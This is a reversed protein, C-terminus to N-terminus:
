AYVSRNYAIDKAGYGAGVLGALFQEVGIKDQKQTEDYVAGLRESENSFRTNQEDFALDELYADLDFQAGKTKSIALAGAQEDGRALDEFTRTKFLQKAERQGNFEDLQRQSSVNRLRVMDSTQQKGLGTTAAGSQALAEAAQRYNQDFSQGEDTQFQGEKVNIGTIANTTDEAVRGRNVENGALTDAKESAINEANMAFESQKRVKKAQNQALFDNLKKEYLPNIAREAASQANRWNGMVDFKALKPTAAIQNQLNRIMAANSAMMKSFESNSDQTTSSGSSKGDWGDLYDGGYNYPHGSIYGRVDNPNPTAPASSGGPNQNKWSKGNDFVNVQDWAKGFFSM